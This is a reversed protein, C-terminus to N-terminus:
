LHHYLKSVQHFQHEVKMQAFTYEEIASNGDDDISFRLLAKKEPCERAYGDVIDYGFNFGQPVKLRYNAIFDEYSDFETKELYRSLFNM